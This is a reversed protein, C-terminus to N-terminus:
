FNLSEHINFFIGPIDGEIRHWTGEDTSPGVVGWNEIGSGHGGGGNEFWISAEPEALGIHFDELLLPMLPVLSESCVRFVM